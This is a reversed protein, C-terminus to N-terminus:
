GNVQWEMFEDEWGFIMIAEYLGNFKATTIRTWGATLAKKLARDTKKFLQVKKKQDDNVKAKM